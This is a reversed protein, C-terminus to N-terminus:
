HNFDPYASKPDVRVYTEQQDTNNRARGDMSANAFDDSHQSYHIDGDPTVSTVVAAHHISGNETWFVVDGPQVDQRQVVHSVTDNVLYDHLASAGGWSHTATDGHGGTVWKVVERVVEHKTWDENEPMGAAALATSVYNACNDKKPDSWDSSPDNWHDTAYQVLKVRDLDTSGHLQDKVSDPIGNLGALEVPVAQELDKKEKDSLSDWWSRVADASQNRPLADRILQVETQSAENQAALVQDTHSPDVDTLGTDGGLKALERAALDDAETAARIADRIVPELKAQWQAADKDNADLPTTSGDPNVRVRHLLASNLAGDLDRQAVEVAESLGALVMYVGNMLDSAASYEGVFSQVTTAADAGAQDKWSDQIKGLVTKHLDSSAQAAQHAFQRWGKAADLWANPRADRLQAVTVM